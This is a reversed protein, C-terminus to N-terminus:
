LEKIKLLLDEAFDEYIGDTKKNRAYYRGDSGTDKQLSKKSEYYFCNSEALKTESPCEFIRTLTNYFFYAYPTRKIKFRVVTKCSSIDECTFVEVFDILETDETIVKEESLLEHLKELFDDKKKYEDRLRFGPLKKNIKNKPRKIKKKSIEISDIQHLIRDYIYAIILSTNTNLDDDLYPEKSLVYKNYYYKIVKSSYKPVQIKGYDVKKIPNRTCEDYPSDIRLDLCTRYITEINDKPSIFDTHNNIEFDELDGYFLNNISVKYAKIYEKRQEFTNLNELEYQIDELKLKTWKQITEELNSNQDIGM